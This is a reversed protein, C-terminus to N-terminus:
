LPNSKGTEPATVSKKIAPQDQKRQVNADSWDYLLPGTKWTVFGEEL